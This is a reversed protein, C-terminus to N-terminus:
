WIVTFCPNGAVTYWLHRFMKDIAPLSNMFLSINKLHEVASKIWPRSYAKIVSINLAHLIIDWELLLMIGWRYFIQEHKLASKLQKHANLTLLSLQEIIWHNQVSSCDIVNYWRDTFIVGTSGCKINLLHEKIYWLWYAPHYKFNIWLIEWKILTLNNSVNNNVNHIVCRSTCDPFTTTITVTLSICFM